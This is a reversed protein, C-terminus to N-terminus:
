RIAGALIDQLQSASIPPTAGRQTAVWSAFRNALESLDELSYERLYYHALCATFADGAGIADSIKVRFGDHRVTQSESVLISGLAGRTICVLLLGYENLLRKALTEETGVGLNLLGSVQALEQDNLKVIHARRLSKSLVHQDYFSQRLNVDFIRLSKPRANQLFSEVAVASGASRQALSGFCIVDARSSLDEWEATWQLFDWAALEKITFNPQGAPDISVAATGTEHENDRQLYSTNLGLSQMVRCVERGLEDNGIRSAVIGEDGLVKTMYAFNAPAGGLVKGSPLLDWLVEGLGVMLAPKTM